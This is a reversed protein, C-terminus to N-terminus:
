MRSSFLLTQLGEQNLLLDLQDYNTEYYPEIVLTDLVLMNFAFVILM